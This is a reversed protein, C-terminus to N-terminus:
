FNFNDTFQNSVFLTSYSLALNSRIGTEVRILSTHSANFYSDPFEEVFDMLFYESM